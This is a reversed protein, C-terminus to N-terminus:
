ASRRVMRPGYPECEGVFERGYAEAIVVHTTCPWEPPEGEYGGFCCGGCTALDGHIEPAHLGLVSAVLADGDVEARLEAHEVQMRILADRCAKERQEPTMVASRGLMTTGTALSLMEARIVAPVLFGDDTM